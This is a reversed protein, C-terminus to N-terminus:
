EAAAALKTRLKPRVGASAAPQTSTLAEIGPHPQWPMRRVRPEAQVTWKALEGLKGRMAVLTPDHEHVAELTSEPDYGMGLLLRASEYLPCRLRKDGLRQGNFYVAHRLGSGMSRFDVSGRGITIRLTEM